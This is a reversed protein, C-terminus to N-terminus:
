RFIGLLLIIIVLLTIPDGGAPLEDLRAAVVRVEDDTLADVRAQAQAPDVGLAVLRAKVAARDNKSSARTQAYASQAVVDSAILAACATPLAVHATLLGAACAGSVPKVLRRLIPM